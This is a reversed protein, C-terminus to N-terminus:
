RSSSPARSSITSALLRFRPRSQPAALRKREDRAKLLTVADAGGLGIENVKGDRTFRFVWRRRAGNDSVRLYLGGGDARWGDKAEAVQRATLMNLRRSCANM